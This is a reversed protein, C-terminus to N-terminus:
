LFFAFHLIYIYIYITLIFSCDRKEEWNKTRELRGGSIKM